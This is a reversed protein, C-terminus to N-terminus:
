EVWMTLLAGTSWNRSRPRTLEAPAHFDTGATLQFNIAATPQFDIGYSAIVFRNLPTMPPEIELCSRINVKQQTYKDPGENSGCNTPLVLEATPQFVEGATPQFNELM